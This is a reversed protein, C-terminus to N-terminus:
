AVRQHRNLPATTLRNRSTPRGFLVATQGVTPPGAPRRRDASRDFRKRKLRYAEHTEHLGDPARTDQSLEAFERGVPRSELTRPRCRLRCEPCQDARNRTDSSAAENAKSGPIAIADDFVYGSTSRCAGCGNQGAIRQCLTANHLRTQHTRTPNEPGAPNGYGHPVPAGRSAKLAIGEGIRHGILVARARGLKRM